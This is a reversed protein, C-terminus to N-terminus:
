SLTFGHRSLSLAIADQASKQIRKERTRELMEDDVEELLDKSLNVVIEDFNKGLSEPQELKGAIQRLKGGVEKLVDQGEPSALREEVGKLLEKANPLGMEEITKEAIDPNNFLQKLIDEVLQSQNITTDM